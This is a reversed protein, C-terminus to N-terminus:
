AAVKENKLMARKNAEQEAAIRDAVERCERFGKVHDDLWALTRKDNKSLKM